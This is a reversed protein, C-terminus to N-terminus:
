IVNFGGGVHGATFGYDYHFIVHRRGPMAPVMDVNRYRRLALTQGAFAMPVCISLFLGLSRGAELGDWAIVAV